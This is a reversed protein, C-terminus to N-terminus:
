KTIKGNIFATKILEFANEEQTDNKDHLKMAEFTNEGNIWKCDIKLIFITSVALIILNMTWRQQVFVIRM